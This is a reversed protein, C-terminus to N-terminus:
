NIIIGNWYVILKLSDARVYAQPYSLNNAITIRWSLVFNHEAYSQGANLDYIGLEANFGEQYYSELSDKQWSDSNIEDYFLNSAEEMPVKPIIDMYIKNILEGGLSSYNNNKDFNFVVDNRFLELLNNRFGVTSYYQYCRVHYRSQNELLQYVKLNSLTLNNKDFLSKVIAFESDSVAPILSPYIRNTKIIATVKDENETICSNLGVIFPLIFLIKYLKNIIM